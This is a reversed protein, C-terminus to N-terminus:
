QQLAPCHHLYHQLQKTLAFPQVAAHGNRAIAAREQNHALYYRIHSILEDKTAFCAVSEHEKFFRSGQDDTRQTLLFAGSAPVEFSRMNHASGNQARIFNLVIKTTMFAKIM